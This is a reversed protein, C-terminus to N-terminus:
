RNSLTYLIRNARRELEQIRKDLQNTNQFIGSLVREKAEKENKRGSIKGQNIDNILTLASNLELINVAHLEGLAYDFLYRVDSYLAENEWNVLVQKEYSMRENNLKNFAANYNIVSSTIQRLTVNDEFVRDNAKRFANVLNKAEIIFSGLTGSIEAYLLSKREETSLGSTSSIVKESASNPQEDLIIAKLEFSINGVLRHREKLVDWVITKQGNGTVKEGVGNGSVRKLSSKFGDDSCYVNVEMRQHPALGNVQYTLLAKDRFSEHSVNTIVQCFTASFLLAFSITLLAPSCAKM